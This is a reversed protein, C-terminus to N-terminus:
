LFDGLGEVRDLHVRTAGILFVWRQKRVVGIVGLLNELLHRLHAPNKTPAIAYESLRPGAQDPRMYAILEGHQDDFMRLKLRGTLVRLFVDEQILLEGESGTIEELVARLREPDSIRAKIEVNAAM